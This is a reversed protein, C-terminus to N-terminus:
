VFMKSIKLFCNWVSVPLTEPGTNNVDQLITYLSVGRQGTVCKMYILDINKTYNQLYCFSYIKSESFFRCSSGWSSLLLCSINHLTRVKVFATVLVQTWFDSKM